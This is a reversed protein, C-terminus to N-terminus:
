GSPQPNLDRRRLKCHYFHSGETIEYLSKVPPENYLYLIIEGNDGSKSHTIEIHDILLNLVKRQDARSFTDWLEDFEKYLGQLADANPAPSEHRAIESVIIDRYASKERRLNNLSDLEKEVPSTDKLTGKALVEILNKIKKDLGSIERDTIILHNRGESTLQDYVDQMNAGDDYDGVFGVAKHFNLGERKGNNWHIASFNHQTFVKHLDSYTYRKIEFVDNKSADWNRSRVSLEIPDNQKRESTQM